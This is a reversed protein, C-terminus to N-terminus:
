VINFTIRWGPLYIADIKPLLSQWYILTLAAKLPMNELPNVTFFEMKIRYHTLHRFNDCDENNKYIHIQFRYTHNKKVSKM